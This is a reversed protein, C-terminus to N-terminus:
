VKAIGAASKAIGALKELLEQYHLAKQQMPLDRRRAMRRYQAPPAGLIAQFTRSFSGVWSIGVLAAIEKAGLNTEELLLAARYM